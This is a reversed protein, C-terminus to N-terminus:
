FTVGCPGFMFFNVMEEAPVTGADNGRYALDEPLGAAINDLDGLGDKATLERGYKNDLGRFVHRFFGQVGLQGQAQHIGLEVKGHQHARGHFATPFVGHDALGEHDRHVAGVAGAEDSGHAADKGTVADVDVAELSNQALIVAIVGQEHELDLDGFIRVEAAQAALQGAFALGLAQADAHLVAVDEFGDM